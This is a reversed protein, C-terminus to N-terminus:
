EDMVFYKRDDTVDDLTDGCDESIVTAMGGDCKDRQYWVEGCEIFEARAQEHTIHKIM